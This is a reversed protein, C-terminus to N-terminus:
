LTDQRRELWDVVHQITKKWTFAKARIFGKQRLEARLSADNALRLLGDRISDVHLGDVVLAADGAVEPLSTLNSILVPTGCRFAEVIPLGFGEFLSPYVVFQALSYIAPMDEAPVAGLVRIRASLPGNLQKVIDNSNWKKGGTLVLHHPIQEKLMEFAKLLRVINKRPSISTPYFMFPEPLRYRQRIEALHASDTIPRYRDHPAEYITVVKEPTARLTRIMDQRTYESDAFLGWTYRVARPMAFRFYLTDLTRYANLEPYFYGLDHVVSLARCPVYLPVPGKPFITVDIKDQWLARPLLLQDWIVRNKTPLLHEVARPFLGLAERVDYYLHIKYAPAFDLLGQALGRIFENPGTFGQTIGRAAIAITQIPRNVSM